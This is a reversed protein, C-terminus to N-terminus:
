KRTIIKRMLSWWWKDLCPLFSFFSSLPYTLVLFHFVLQSYLASRHKQTGTHSELCLSDDYRCNECYWSSHTILRAALIHVSVADVSDLFFYALSELFLDICTKGARQITWLLLLVNGPRLTKRKFYSAFPVPQLWYIKKQSLHCHEPFLLSSLPLEAPPGQSPSSCVRVPPATSPEAGALPVSSPNLSSLERHLCLLSFFPLCPVAGKDYPVKAKFAGPTEM